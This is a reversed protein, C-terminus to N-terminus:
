KTKMRGGWIVAAIVPGAIGTVLGLHSCFEVGSFWSAHHGLSNGSGAADVRLSLAILDAVNLAVFVSIGTGSASGAILPVGPAVDVSLIRSFWCRYRFRAGFQTDNLYDDYDFFISGGLSTRRSATYMLGLNLSYLLKEYVQRNKWHNTDHDSLRYSVSTETIWFSRCEPLPKGRFCHQPAAYEGTIFFLAGLM